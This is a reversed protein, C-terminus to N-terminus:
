LHLPSQGRITRLTNGKKLATRLDALTMILPDVHGVSSIKRM